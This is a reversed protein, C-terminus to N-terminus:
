CACTRCIGYLAIRSRSRFLALQRGGICKLGDLASGRSGARRGNAIAGAARTDRLISRAGLSHQSFEMKGHFWGVSKGDRLAEVTKQLLEAEDPFYHHAIQKSRLFGHIEENTFRPGLLGGKLSDYAGPRRERGFLHYQAFLASGLAASAGDNLSPIWVDDFGSEKLSNSTAVCHRALAGGVCLNNCGTLERAFRALRLVIEAAIQQVSAAIDRERKTIPADPLRPTGGLLAHLGSRGLGTRRHVFKANLKLSGDDSFRIIKERIVDAYLPEGSPALAILQEAAHQHDLGCFTAFAVYFRRIADACNVVRVIEVKNAHGRAIVASDGLGSSEILLIAANDFPSPFFAAAAHAEAHSVYQRRAQCRGALARRMQWPRQLNFRFWRPLERISRPRPASSHVSTQYPPEFGFQPRDYFVAYGIDEPSLGAASLCTEIAKTPFGPALVGTLREEEAAAVIEGDVVFAAASEKGCASIGLIRVSM